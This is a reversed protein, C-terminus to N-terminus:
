ADAGRGLRVLNLSEGAVEHALELERRHCTFLVVQRSEAGGAGGGAGGREALAQVAGRAREADFEVLSDDLLLPMSERGGAVADAIALRAALVLQDRAGSSLSEAPVIKSSEPSRVSLSFRDDAMAEGYRGATLRGALRGIAENLVPAFDAHMREAAEEITEIALKLAERSRRIRGLEERQRGIELEVLGPDRQDATMTEITGLLQDRESRLNLIIGVVEELERELRLMTEEDTPVGGYDEASGAALERAEALERALSEVSRGALVGELNERCRTLEESHHMFWRKGECRELFETYSRVVAREYLGELRGRAGKMEVEVAGIEKSLEAQRRRASRLQEALDKAAAYNDLFIRIEVEDPKGGRAALGVSDLLGLIRAELRGVEDELQPIRKQRFLLSNDALTERLGDYEARLRILEKVDKVSAVSLIARREARLEKRRQLLEDYDRSARVGEEDLRQGKMRTLLAAVAGVVALAALAPWAFIANVIEMAHLVALLTAALACAIAFIGSGITLTRYPGRFWFAKGARDSLRLLGEGVREDESALEEAMAVADEGLADFLRDLELFRQQKEEGRAQDGHLQSTLSWLNDRAGKWRTKLEVLEEDARPRLLTYPALEGSKAELEAAERRATEERDRLKELEGEGRSRSEELGQVEAKLEHPFDAFGEYDRLADGHEEIKRGLGEAMVLREALAEARGVARRRRLDDERERAERLERELQGLREKHAGLILRGEVTERRESELFALRERLEKERRGRDTKGIGGLAKSLLALASTAGGDREGGGLIKLLLNSLDATDDFGGSLALQRVLVSNLFASRSLGFLERAFLIEGRKDRPFQDGIEKGLDADHVTVEEGDRDFRRFVELRRGDDLSFNIKGEYAGGSWPLYREYEPLYLRRTVGERKAGYLILEIFSLITTKGAENDGYVLNFGPALKVEEDRFCGFELLHLREIRM